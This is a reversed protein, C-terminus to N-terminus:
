AVFNVGNAGSQVLHKPDANQPTAEYPKFSRQNEEATSNNQNSGGYSIDLSTEGFGLDSLAELLFDKERLLLEASNLETAIIQAIMQDSSQEVTVQLQGLEPPNLELSITQTPEDQFSSFKNRFAQDVQATVTPAVPQSAPNSNIPSQSEFQIAQDMATNLANVTSGADMPTDTSAHAVLAEPLERELATSNVQENTATFTQNQESELSQEAATHDQNATESEQSNSDLSTEGELEIPQEEKLIEVGSPPDDTLFENPFSTEGTTESELVTASQNDARNVIALTSTSNQANIQSDISSADIIQEIEASGSQEDTSLQFNTQTKLQVAPSADAIAHAFLGVVAAPDIDQDNLGSDEPEAVPQELAELTAEFSAPPADQAGEAAKGIQAAPSSGVAALNGPFHNVQNGQIIRFWIFAFQIGVTTDDLM